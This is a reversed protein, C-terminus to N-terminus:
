NQVPRPKDFPTIPLRAELGFAGCRPEDFHLGGLLGLFSFRCGCATCRIRVDAMFKGSDTLRNVDVESAFDPHPCNDRAEAAYEAAQFNRKTM